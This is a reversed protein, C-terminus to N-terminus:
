WGLCVPTADVGSPELARRVADVAATAKILDSSCKTLGTSAVDDLRAVDVEQAAEKM